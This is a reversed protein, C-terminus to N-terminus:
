PQWEFERDIPYIPRPLHQFPLSLYNVTAVGPTDLNYTQAVIPDFSVRHAQNSKVVVIRKEDFLIGASKFFDRDKRANPEQGASVIVDIRNGVRLVARPGVNMETFAERRVERGWSGHNPGCIMYVGDDISRVYATVRLPQYFRQDITAGLDLTLEAGVGAKMAAELGPADRIALAADRAGLRLLAELVAPSDAPALSGPDDALDVLCVLGEDQAMARRVGEDISVQPRVTRIDERKAWLAAAMHQAIRDALEPDGDTTAIVSMGLYPVDSYGYGGQITLNILGPTTRELEERMVNLQYLPLRQEEAPNHAWTSQGINPGIIPVRILRTVPRVDGALMRFLCEAAEIGREYSDIHPNTNNPFPVAAQVEEDVYNGHFDYTAVIPLRNGVVGRVARILSAEADTYPPQVALAGHLHLYVADVPPAQRLGEVILDRYHEFVHAHVTGGRNIFSVDALPVFEVGPRRAAELFGGVFGKPHSETLIAEGQLLMATLGDNEELAFSNTEHMMGAIAIRTM